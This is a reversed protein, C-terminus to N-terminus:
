KLRWTTIKYYALIDRMTVIGNQLPEAFSPLTRPVERRRQLDSRFKVYALATSGTEEELRALRHLYSLGKRAVKSFDVKLLEQLAEVTIELKTKGVVNVSIPRKPNSIYRWHPFFPYKAPGLSAGLRIPPNDRIRPFYSKQQLDLYLRLIQFLQAGNQISMVWVDETALHDINKTITM